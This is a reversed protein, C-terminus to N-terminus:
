LMFRNARQKHILIFLVQEQDPHCVVSAILQKVLGHSASHSPLVNVISLQPCEDLTDM